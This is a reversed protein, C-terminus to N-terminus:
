AALRTGLGCGRHLSWLHDPTMGRNRPGTSGSRWRSFMHYINEYIVQASWQKHTAEKHSNTQKRYGLRAFAEKVAQGFFCM